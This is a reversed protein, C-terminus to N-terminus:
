ISVMHPYEGPAALIRGNLEDDNADQATDTEQPFIRQIFEAYEIKKKM